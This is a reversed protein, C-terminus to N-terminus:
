RRLWWRGAPKIRRATAIGLFLACGIIAGLADAVADMLDANRNPVFSQHWEDIAGWLTAAFASLLFVAPTKWRPRTRAVSYCCLIALIAYEILHVVKDQMKFIVVPAVVRPISSLTWILAMYALTPLWYLPTSRIAKM